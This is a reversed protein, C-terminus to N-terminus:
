DTVCVFYKALDAQTVGLQKATAALEAPTKGTTYPVVSKCEVSDGRNGGQTVRHYVTGPVKKVPAAPKTSVPPAGSPGWEHVPKAVPKVPPAPETVTPPPVPVPAPHKNHTAGYWLTAALAAAAVGGFVYNVTM